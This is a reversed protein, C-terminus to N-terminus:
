RADVAGTTEMIAKVAREIHSSPTSAGATIGILGAGTLWAPDIECADEVHHTRECREACIQALRRTNGSNKGGVVIMVDARSALESAAQQREQTASCITNIVRVESARTLLASVVGALTAQTQTTQVVVGVRSSIELGALDDACSVVRAAGDAHGMIGEVEPHGSEGVVILQYGERVLKEAAAHVRKVYPCTADLVTLNRARAQEIVAPVVGHARIIISGSAADDLTEALGVGQAELEKVVLPNHILPGLTHVPAPASTAADAAMSLAREVGYCVGAHAAIEIRAM